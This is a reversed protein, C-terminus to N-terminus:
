VGKENQEQKNQEIEVNCDFIFKMVKKCIIASCVVIIVTAITNLIFNDYTVIENNKNKYTGPNRIASYILIDGFILIIFVTFWKIYDAKYKSKDIQILELLTPVTISYTLIIVDGQNIINTFNLNHSFIATIIPALFPFLTCLLTTYLWIKQKEDYEQKEKSEYILENKENYKM